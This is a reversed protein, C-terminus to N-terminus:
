CLITTGSSDTTASGTLNFPDRWVVQVETRWEDYQGSCSTYGYYNGMSSTNYVTGGGCTGVQLWGFPSEWKQVCVYLNIQQMQTNCSATGDGIIYAGQDYYPVSASPTCYLGDDASATSVGVAGACAVIAVLIVGVKVLKRM